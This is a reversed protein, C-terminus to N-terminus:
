FDDINRKRLEAKSPDYYYQTISGDMIKNITDKIVELPVLFWEEPKIPKGFRDIIDINLKVNCFIQQVLNEFKSSKINFLKYSDVIEVEAMLFTPDSKANAIRQSYYDYVLKTSLIEIRLSLLFIPIM